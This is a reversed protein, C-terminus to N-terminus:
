EVLDMDIGELILTYPDIELYKCVQKIKDLPLSKATSWKRITGNAWGFHQEIASITTNRRDAFTRINEYIPQKM